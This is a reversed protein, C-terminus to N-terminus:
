PAALLTPDLECLIKTAFTFKEILITGGLLIKMTITTADTSLSALLVVFVTMLTISADDLSIEDLMSM